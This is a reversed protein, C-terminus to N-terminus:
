IHRLPLGIVCLFVRNAVMTDNWLYRPKVSVVHWDMLRRIGEKIEARATMGEALEADSTGAARLNTILAMKGFSCMLRAKAEEDVRIVILYEKKAKGKRM